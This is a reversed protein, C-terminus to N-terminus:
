DEVVEEAEEEEEAGGSMGVRSLGQVGEPNRELAGEKEALRLMVNRSSASSEALRTKYDSFAQVQYNWLSDAHVWKKSYITRLVVSREDTPLAAINSRYQSTYSYYEEANSLYLVEVPLDLEKAAKAVTQMTTPGTLNGLVMRVRDNQYLKRIHAYFEPNSLWSTPQGDQDRGIVKELHRYVTERGSRWSMLTGRLQEDSIKGSLADEILKASAEANDEHFRQHLTQADESAEILVEYARHLETVRWDLDILFVLESKAAAILTYNQDAAVGIYVGGKDALYPFWVDHRRENTKIYHDQVEVHDEEPGALFLAQREPSLPAYPDIEEPAAEPAAEPDGAAEVDQASAQPDDANAPEKAPAEAPTQVAQASEPPTNDCALPALAFALLALARAGPLAAPSLRRSSPM